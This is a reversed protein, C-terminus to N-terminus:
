WPKVISKFGPLSMPAKAHGQSPWVQDDVPQVMANEVRGNLSLVSLCSLCPFLGRFAGLAICVPRQLKGVLPTNKCIAIQSTDADFWYLLTFRMSFKMLIDPWM